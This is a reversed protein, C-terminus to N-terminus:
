KIRYVRLTAKDPDSKPDVEHAVFEREQVDIMVPKDSKGIVAGAADKIDQMEPQGDAGIKPTQKKFRQNASFLTSNFGKKDMGTLGFSHYLFEGPKDPNPVPAALDDFKYKSGKGRRSNLVSQPLAMPAASVGLVAVDARERRKSGAEAVPAAPAPSASPKPTANAFAVISAASLLAFKRNM